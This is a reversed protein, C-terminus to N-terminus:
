LLIIPRKFQKLHSDGYGLVTSTEPIKYNKRISTRDSDEGAFEM